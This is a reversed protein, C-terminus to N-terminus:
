RRGGSPAAPQQPTAPTPAPAPAVAPTTPPPPPPPPPTRRTPTTTASGAPTAQRNETLTIQIAEVYRRQGTVGASAGNAAWSTWATNQFVMYQVDYKDALEGTLEVQISEMLKNSIAEGAIENHYKWDSWVGGVFVRYRITGPIDTNVRVRVAEAQRRVSPTGATEASRVFPGWGTATMSVAYTLDVTQAYVFFAAFFLVAFFGTFKKM